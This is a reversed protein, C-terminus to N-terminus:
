INLTKSHFLGVWRWAFHFPAYADVLYSIDHTNSRGTHAVENRVESMLLLADSCTNPNFWNNEFLGFDPEFAVINIGLFSKYKEKLKDLSTGKTYKLLSKAIKEDEVRETILEEFRNVLYYEIAVYTSTVIQECMSKIHPDKRLSDNEDQSMHFYWANVLTSFAEENEMLKNIHELDVDRKQLRAFSHITYIDAARILNKISKYHVEFTKFASSM